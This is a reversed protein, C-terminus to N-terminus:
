SQTRRSWGLLSFRPKDGVWCNIGVFSTLFVSHAYTLALTNDYNTSPIDCVREICTMLSASRIPRYANEPYYLSTPGLCTIIASHRSDSYCCDIFAEPLSSHMCPTDNQLCQGSFYLLSAFISGRAMQLGFCGCSWVWYLNRSYSVVLKPLGSWGTGWLQGHWFKWLLYLPHWMGIHTGHSNRLTETDLNSGSTLLIILFLPDYIPYIDVRFLISAIKIYWSKIGLLFAKRWNKGRLGEFAVKLLRM